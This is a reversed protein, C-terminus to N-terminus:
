RRSSGVGAMGQVVRAAILLPMSLPSCRLGDFSCRSSPSAVSISASPASAISWGNGNLPLMLALALLYASPRDVPRERDHSHLDDRIAPAALRQRGDRRDAGHVTRLLVVAVVRLIAPDLLKAKRGDAISGKVDATAEEAAPAGRGPM